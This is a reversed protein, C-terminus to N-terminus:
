KLNILTGEYNLVYDLCDKYKKASELMKRRKNVLNYNLINLNTNEQKLKRYYKSKNTLSFGILSLDIDDIKIPHFMKCSCKLSMKDMANLYRPMIYKLPDKITYIHKEWPNYYTRTIFYNM